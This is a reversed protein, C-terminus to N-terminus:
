ITAVKVHQRRDAEFVLKLLNPLPYLLLLYLEEVAILHGGRDVQELHQSLIGHTQVERAM